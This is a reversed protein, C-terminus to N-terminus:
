NGNHEIYRMADEPTDAFYVLDNLPRPLFGETDMRELQTKLGEYFSSTNLFVVLKNHQSHKKLEMVETVEDLTGLGGPLVVIADAQELLKAKRETLTSMVHMEDAKERATAKLLEVTVGIVKGGASQAADAIVKMTGKDSGGWVLTHGGEAIRTAFERAADTYHADVDSASCFVCINM